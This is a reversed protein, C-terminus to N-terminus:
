RPQILFNQGQGSRARSVQHLARPDPWKHPSSNLQYVLASLMNQM